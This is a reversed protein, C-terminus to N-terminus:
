ACQRITLKGMIEQPVAGVCSLQCVQELICRCLHRGGKHGFGVGGYKGNKFVLNPRGQGGGLACLTAHWDAESSAPHFQRGHVADRESEGGDYGKELM